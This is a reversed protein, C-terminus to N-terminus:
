VKSVDLLAGHFDSRPEDQSVKSIDIVPRPVVNAYRKQYPIYVLSDVM